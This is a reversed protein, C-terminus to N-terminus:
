KDTIHRNMKSFSSFLIIMKSTNVFKLISCRHINIGNMYSKSVDYLCQYIVGM